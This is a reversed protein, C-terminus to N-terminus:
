VVRTRNGAPALDKEEGCGGPAVQSGGLRDDLPLVPSEKGLPPPTFRCRRSSAV